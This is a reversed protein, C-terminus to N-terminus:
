CCKNRSEEHVPVVQVPSVNGPSEARYWPTGPRIAESDPRKSLIASLCLNIAADINKNTKASVPLWGKFGHENCFLNLGNKDYGVGNMDCKNALLVIPIPEEDETVINEMLNNRWKLVASWTDPRSLDYVIFAAMAYKYYVRTMHGYREHGAVDWLQLHIKSKSDWDIVRLAFDAGLTPRYGSIFRGKQYM